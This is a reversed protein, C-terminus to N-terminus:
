VNIVVHILENMVLSVTIFSPTMREMYMVDEYGYTDDRWIHSVRVFTDSTIFSPTMCQIVLLSHLLLVNWTCWMNMHLHIVHEDGFTGDRWIFSVRAFTDRLIFSCTICYVNMHAVRRLMCTARMFMYYMLEIYLNSTRRLLRTICSMNTHALRRM